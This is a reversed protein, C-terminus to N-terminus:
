VFELLEALPPFSHHHHHSRLSKKYQHHQTEPKYYESKYEVRGICEFHPYPVDLIPPLLQILTESLIFM